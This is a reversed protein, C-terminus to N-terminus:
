NSFFVCNDHLRIFKNSALSSDGADVGEAKDGGRNTYKTLLDSILWNNRQVFNDRNFDQIIVVKELNGKLCFDLIITTLKLSIKKCNEKVIKPHKKQFSKDKESYFSNKPSAFRIHWM